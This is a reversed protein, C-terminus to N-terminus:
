HCFGLSSFERLEATSQTAKVFRIMKQLDIKYKLAIESVEKFLSKTTMQSIFGGVTGDVSVYIM